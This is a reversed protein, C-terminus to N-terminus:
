KQESLFRLCKKKVGGCQNGYKPCATAYTTRQCAEHCHSCLFKFTRTHIEREHSRVTYEKVKVKKSAM